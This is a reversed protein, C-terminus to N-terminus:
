VLGRLWFIKDELEEVRKQLAANEEDKAILADRLQRIEVAKSDIEQNKQALLNGVRVAYLYDSSQESM